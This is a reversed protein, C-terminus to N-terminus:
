YILFEVYLAFYQLYLKGSEQCIVSSHKNLMVLGAYAQDKVIRNISDSFMDRKEKKIENRM